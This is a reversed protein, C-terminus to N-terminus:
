PEAWSNAYPISTAIPTCLGECFGPGSSSILLSTSSIISLYKRAVFFISNAATFFLSFSPASLLDVEMYNYNTMTLSHAPSSMVRWSSSKCKQGFGLQSNSYPVHSIMYKTESRRPLHRALSPLFIDCMWWIIHLTFKQMVRQWKWSVIVIYCWRNSWIKQWACSPHLQASALNCLFLTPTEIKTVHLSM